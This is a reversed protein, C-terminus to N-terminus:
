AKGWERVTAKSEDLTVIEASGMIAACIAAVRETPIALRLNVDRLQQGDTQDAYPRTEAFVVHTLGYLRQVTLVQDVVLTPGFSNDIIVPNRSM